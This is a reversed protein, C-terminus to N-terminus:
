WAAGEVGPPEESNGGLEECSGHGEDLHVPSPEEKEGKCPRKSSAAPNV